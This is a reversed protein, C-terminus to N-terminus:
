ALALLMEPCSGSGAGNDIGKADEEEEDDDDCLTVPGSACNM